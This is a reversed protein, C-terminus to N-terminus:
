EDHNPKAAHPTTIERILRDRNTQRVKEYVEPWDVVKAHLTNTVNHVSNCLHCPASFTVERMGSMDVMHGPVFEGDEDTHDDVWFDAPTTIPSETIEVM